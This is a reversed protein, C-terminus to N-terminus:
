RDAERATLDQKYSELTDEHAHWRIALAYRQMWDYGGILYACQTVVSTLSDRLVFAISRSHDDRARELQVSDWWDQFGAALIPRLYPEHARYFPNAPLEFLCNWYSRFIAPDPVPRDRDILDDIVQTTAFLQQCFAIAPQNGCLVQQLFTEENHRPM